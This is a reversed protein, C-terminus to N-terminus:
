AAKPATRKLNAPDRRRQTKLWRDVDNPDYFIRRAVVIWPPGKRLCRWAALTQRKVGLTEALVRDPM